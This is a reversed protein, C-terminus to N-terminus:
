VQYRFSKEGHHSCGASTALTVQEKKDLHQNLYRLYMSYALICAITAGAFAANIIIATMYRPAEDTFFINSAILGASNALSILIGMSFARANLNVINAVTWASFIVSM